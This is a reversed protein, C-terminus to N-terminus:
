KPFRYSTVHSTRFNTQLPFRVSEAITLWKILSRLNNNWQQLFRAVDILNKVNKTERRLYLRSAKTITEKKEEKLNKADNKDM